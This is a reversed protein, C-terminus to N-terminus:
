NFNVWLWGAMVNFHGITLSVAPDNNFTWAFNFIGWAIHGIMEELGKRSHNGL